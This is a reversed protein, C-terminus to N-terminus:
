SKPKAHAFYMGSSLAVNAQAVGNRLALWVLGFNITDDISLITLSKKMIRVAM